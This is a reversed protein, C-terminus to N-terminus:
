EASDDDIGEIDSGPLRQRHEAGPAYPKAGNLGCCNDIRMRDNGHIHDLLLEGEGPAQARGVCNVSPCHICHLSDSFQGAATDIVSNVGDPQGLRLFL